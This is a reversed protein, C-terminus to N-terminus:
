FGILKINKHLSTEAWGGFFPVSIGSTGRCFDDCNIKGQCHEFGLHRDGHIICDYVELRNNASVGLGSGNHVSVIDRVVTKPTSSSFGVASGKNKYGKFAGFESCKSRETIGAGDYISAGTGRTSHVVNNVNINSEGCPYAPLEIGAGGADSIINNTLLIDTPKMTQLESISVAVSIGSGGVQSVVNNDITLQTSKSTFSMGGGRFDHIVNNRIELGQTFTSTIASGNGWFFASNTVKKVGRMATAFRLAPFGGQSCNYIAVNDFSISGARYSFDAPEFFDAVLIHCQYKLDPGSTVNVNSSLLLVEGRMDLGDFKEATSEFAGFHYGKLKETLTVIGNQSDYSEVTVTETFHSEREVTLDLQTAALGLKDGNVLDLDTSVLLKKDGPYVPATLRTFRSKRPKGYM